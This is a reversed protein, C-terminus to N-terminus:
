ANRKHRSSRSRAGGFERLYDPNTSADRPGKVSGALHAVLEFASGHAEDEGGRALADRLIQSKAVHRERALRELRSFQRSNLKVTVTPMSAHYNAEALAAIGFGNSNIACALNTLM